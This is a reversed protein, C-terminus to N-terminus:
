IRQRQIGFKCIEALMWESKLLVLLQRRINKQTYKPMFNMRICRHNYLNYFLHIENWIFYIIEYSHCAWGELLKSYLKLLAQYVNELIHEVIYKAIILYTSQEIWRNKDLCSIQKVMNCMKVEQLPNLVTDIFLM